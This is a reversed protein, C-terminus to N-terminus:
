KNGGKVILKWSRSGNWAKIFLDLDVEKDEGGYLQDPDNIIVNKDTIDKVVVMHGHEEQINQYHRASVIVIPYFGKSLANKLEEFSANPKVEHNIDMIDLIDSLMPISYGTGLDFGIIGSLEYESIKRGVSELIMRLCALSCTFPTQQKYYPLLM